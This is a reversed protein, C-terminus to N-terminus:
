NKENSSIIYNIVLGFHQFRTSWFINKENRYYNYIDSPVAICYAAEAYFKQTFKHGISFKYQINYYYLRNWNTIYNLNKTINFTYNNQQIKYANKEFFMYNLGINLYNKKVNYRFDFSLGLKQGKTEVRFQKEQLIISDSNNPSYWYDKYIGSNLSLQAYNYVIGAGVQLHKNIKRLTGVNTIFTFGPKTLYGIKNLEHNYNNFFGSSVYFVYKKKIGVNRNTDIDLAFTKLAILSLFSFTLINKM